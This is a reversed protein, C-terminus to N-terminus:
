TLSSVSSIASQTLRLCNICYKMANRNMASASLKQTAEILELPKTTGSEIKVVAFEAIANRLQSIHVGNAAQLLSAWQALDKTRAAPKLERLTRRLCEIGQQTPKRVVDDILTSVVEERGVCKQLWLLIRGSSSGVLCPHDFIVPLARAICKEIAKGALQQPKLPVGPTFALTALAHWDCDGRRTRFHDDINKSLIAALEAEATRSAMSVNRLRPLMTNIDRFPESSRLFQQLFVYDSFPAVGAENVIGMETRFAVLSEIERTSDEAKVAREIHKGYDKFQLKIICKLLTLLLQDTPM